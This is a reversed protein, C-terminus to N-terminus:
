PVELDPPSSPKHKEYFKTIDMGSRQEQEMLQIRAELQDVKRMLKPILNADQDAPKPRPVEPYGLHRQMASFLFLPEKRRNGFAIRGEKEGFLFPGKGDLPEGSDELQKRYHDSALYLLDAFDVLGVQARLYLIWKSWEKSFTPDQSIATLGKDYNLRNRCLVEFQFFFLAAPSVDLLRFSAEAEMVQLAAAMTFRGTDQESEDVLYSQFATFYHDLRYMAPALLGTHKVETLLFGIAMPLKTTALLEHRTQDLLDQIPIQEATRQRLLKFLYAQEVYEDRDLPSKAVVQDPSGM